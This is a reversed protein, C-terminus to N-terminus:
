SIAYKPNFIFKEDINKEIVIAKNELESDSQKALDSFDSTKIELPFNFEPSIIKNRVTTEIRGKQQAILDPKKQASVLKEAPFNYNIESKRKPKADFTGNKRQENAKYLIWLAVAVIYFIIKFIDDM